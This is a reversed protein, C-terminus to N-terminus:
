NGVAIPEVIIHEAARESLAIKTGCIQCVLTSQGSIKQIIAAECFGMERLRQCFAPQGALECVRGARGNPLQTLPLRSPRLPLPLSSM